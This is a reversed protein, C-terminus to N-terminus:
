DNEMVEIAKENEINMTPTSNYKTVIGTVCIKEGMLFESPNYSFNITKEKFISISFIQNPFRKDLNLFINGKSSLKTSVITGCVCIKERKGIYIQAQVTNFTKRPLTTPDLPEIDEQESLSLFPKVHKTAELRNELTDPLQPFFDIGTIKEVEDITVAYSEMPLEAKKNEMIFAIAQKKDLDVAVKFHKEPISVNNKAKPIRPLGPTLVPGTVIYLQSHPNRLIYGRILDELKAWSDRNFEPRQPTMNSYLFSESLAKPSWRFDASPALHGRDFGFGDYTYTGDKNKTKIFYDQEVSSGTAILTDPRFIIPVDRM